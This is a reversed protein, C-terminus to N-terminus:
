LKSARLEWTRREGKFGEALPTESPSEPFGPPGDRVEVELM